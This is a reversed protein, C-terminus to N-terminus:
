ILHLYGEHYKKGSYSQSLENLDPLLINVLSVVYRGIIYSGWHPLLFFNGNSNRTQYRNLVNLPLTFSRIVAVLSTITELYASDIAVLGNKSKTMIWQITSNLSLWESSVILKLKNVLLCYNSRWVRDDTIKIIEMTEFPFNMVKEVIKLNKGGTYTTRPFTINISPFTQRNVMPSPPTSWGQDPPPPPYRMGPRITLPVGDWTQHHPPYGMGPKSPPPTGLRLDPHHHTGWGLDPHHPPPYRPYGRALDPHTPPVKLVGWWSQIPYGGGVMIPHPVGWWSQIPYGGVAYCASAVHCTTHRKCECLLVKKDKSGNNEKEPLSCCIRMSICEDMNM